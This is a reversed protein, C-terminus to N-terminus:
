KPTVLIRGRKFDEALHKVQLFAVKKRAGLFDLNSNISPLAGAGMQKRDIRIVYDKPTEDSSEWAFVESPHKANQSSKSNM